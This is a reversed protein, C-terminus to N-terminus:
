SQAKDATLVHKSQGNRSRGELTLHVQEDMTCDTQNELQTIRTPNYCTSLHRMVKFCHNATKWTTVSGLNRTAIYYNLSINGRAGVRITCDTQNELQTIRTPNYCTGLHRM